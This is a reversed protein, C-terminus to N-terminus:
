IFFEKVIENIHEVDKRDYEKQFRNLIEKIEKIDKVENDYTKM